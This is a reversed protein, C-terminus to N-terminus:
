DKLEDEPNAAIAARFDSMDQFLADNYHFGAPVWDFTKPEAFKYYLVRRGAGAAVPPPTTHLAYGDHITLDGPETEIAVVPLGAEQGWAMLHKVYRHSGALVLLQGNAPDAHDLQLGVQIFPCIVPRGGLPTDTHWGLNGNGKVINSNKIFVMPGDLNDECVELDPGALRAFRLLRPDHSLEGLASSYKGLYNIRTLVNEGETTVSWWTFPDDPTTRQRASEIEAGIREVEDSSFVSGVHVFGAVEFFHRMEDFDDDVSFKRNLDLPAGSRDVLTEWVAPGYIERGSFLAQIAPEWRQWGAIDGRPFHARGTREAGWATLLDNLHFSFTEESLEVVTEADADGERVEVGQDSPVWTFAVGDCRFALPPAGLLDAAVLHGRRDVLEPLQERHFAVFSIRDFSRFIAEGWPEEIGVDLSTM